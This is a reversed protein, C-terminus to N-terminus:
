LYLHQTWGSYILQAHSMYYHQDSTYNNNVHALLCSNVASDRVGTLCASHDTYGTGVCAGARWVVSTPRYIHLLHYFQLKDITNVAM